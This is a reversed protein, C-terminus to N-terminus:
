GDQGGYIITDPRFAAWSFWFHDAHIIPTLQEGALPGDIAQGLINWTSGTEADVIADGNRNFTLKQGNLNPDFVGTAGVDQATAINPGGLASSTGSTHFVVLDQGAQSDNIVGAEALIDLPYAVDTEGLSVTVVRAMAPLRGDLQKGRFLFPTQGITDYGVYPNEGYRRRFGTEQSLVVGDPFAQRFDDFSVISSPLFTLIEGALEGVIGEGTFQQWLTETTRDYMILDSFRLLGSTGFEFVQGNVRRDFVIASNCLPCFTVTVPVEGVTDNVIEHWILVQLPYARAEGEIELSIVPENGFLWEEAASQSIFQPEDISPIGDRPPGGSLIEDTSITRRTWDTNWSATLAALRDSRDDGTLITVESDAQVDEVVEVEEDAAPAEQGAETAAEAEESDETDTVTSESADAPTTEEQSATTEDEVTTSPAETAETNQEPLDAALASGSEATLAPGCAALFLLAVLGFLLWGTRQKAKAQM